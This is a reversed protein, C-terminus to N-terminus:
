VAIEDCSPDLFPLGLIIQGILGQLCEFHLLAVFEVAVQTVDQSQVAFDRVQDREGFLLLLLVFEFELADFVGDFQRLGVDELGYEVRELDVPPLLV